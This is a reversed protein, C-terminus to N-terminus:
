LYKKEVVRKDPLDKGLQRVKNVISLLRDFLDKITELEKMKQIEFERRLNLVQMQITKENGHFEEKLYNWIQKTTDLAIIRPFIAESVASYLCTKAKFKKAREERHNRIQPLTPDGPLPQPDHDQEVVDWFGCAQLLTKM